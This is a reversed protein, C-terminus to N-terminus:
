EFVIQVINANVELERACICNYVVDRQYQKLIYEYFRIKKEFALSTVLIFLVQLISSCLFFTIGSYFGTKRRDINDDIYVMYFPVRPSKGIGQLTMGIGILSLALTQISYSPAALANNLQELNSHCVNETFNLKSQCLLNIKNRGSSSNTLTSTFNLTPLLGKSVAIVYPLSCILGSIGHLFMSIFLVRPIHVFRAAASIFLVIAFYGIDNFAMALGTQASNLGFQRELNPVQTNIYINLTQSAMVVVSYVGVFVNINGFYQLCKPRFNGIGCDTSEGRVTDSEVHENGRM